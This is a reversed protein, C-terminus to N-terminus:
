TLQGGDVRLVQGTVHRSAPSLLFSVVGAVDEPTGLRGLCTEARAADLFREELSETMPTEIMGPAVCNVRIGFRGVERALSKAFGNLGAKSAAYAAQGFRGREGNISSLLVISGEGRERLAPVAARCLHFASELNVSLVDRWDETGLKWTVADRRIGACHVLGFLEGAAEDIARSCDEPSSLDAELTAAAGSVSGSGPRDVATVQWDAEALGAVIARGIGGAGGTVVVGRSM